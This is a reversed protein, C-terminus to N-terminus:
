RRGSGREIPTDRPSDEHSTAVIAEIAILAIANIALCLMLGFIPNKDLLGASGFLGADGGGRRRSKVKMMM